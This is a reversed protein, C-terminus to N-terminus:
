FSPDRYSERRGVFAGGSGTIWRGNQNQRVPKLKGDIIRFTNECANPNRSYEYVEDGSGTGSVVTAIDRQISIYDYKGKTFLGCVTGAHRDSWGTLTAPDGISINKCTSTSYIHNVLSVTQTNLKM